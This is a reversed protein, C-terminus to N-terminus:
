LYNEATAGINIHETLLQAHQLHNEYAATANYM